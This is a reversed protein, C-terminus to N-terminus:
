ESSSTEDGPKPRGTCVDHTPRESGKTRVHINCDTCLWEDWAGDQGSYSNVRIWAHGPPRVTDGSEDGTPVVTDAVMDYEPPRSPGPPKTPPEEPLRLVRIVDSGRLIDLQVQHHMNELRVIVAPPEAMYFRVIFTVLWVQNYVDGEQLAMAPIDIPELEERRAWQPAQIASFRGSSKGTITEGM